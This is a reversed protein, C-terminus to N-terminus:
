AHLTSGGGEWGQRCRDGAKSRYAQMVGKVDEEDRSRMGDRATVNRGGGEGGGGRVACAHNRLTRVVHERARLCVHITWM